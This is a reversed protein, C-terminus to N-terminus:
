PIAFKPVKLRYFSAPTSEEVSGHETSSQTSIEGIIEIATRLLELLSQQTSTQQLPLPQM